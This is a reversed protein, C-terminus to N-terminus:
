EYMRALHSKLRKVLTPSVVEKYIKKFHDCLMLWNTDLGVVNVIFLLPNLNEIKEWYKKLEIKMDIAIVHLLYLTM